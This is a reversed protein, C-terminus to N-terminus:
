PSRRRALGPRDTSCCRRCASADMGGHPCPLSDACSSLSTPSTRSTGNWSMWGDSWDEPVTALPKTGGARVLTKVLHGLRDRTEPDRGKISLELRRLDVLRFVEVLSVGPPEDVEARDALAAWHAKDVQTGRKAWDAGMEVLTSRAMREANM